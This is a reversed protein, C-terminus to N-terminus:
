RLTTGSTIYHGDFSLMVHRRTQSQVTDQDTHATKIDANAPWRSM